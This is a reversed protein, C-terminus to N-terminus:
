KGGMERQRAERMRKEIESLSASGGQTSPTASTVSASTPASAAAGTLNQGIAVHTVRGGSVFDFGDFTINQITGGAMADGDKIAIVKGADRDEVFAQPRGDVITIGNFVLRQEPSSPPAYTTPVRPRDNSATHQRGKVFISRSMLPAYEPPLTGVHFDATERASSRASSQPHTTESPTTRAAAPAISSTAPMTAPAAGGTATLLVFACPSILAILERKM